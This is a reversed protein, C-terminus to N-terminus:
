FAASSSPSFRGGTLLIDLDGDQDFEGWVRRRSAPV